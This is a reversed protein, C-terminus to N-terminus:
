LVSIPDDVDSALPTTAQELLPGAASSTGLTSITPLSLGYIVIPVYGADDADGAAADGADVPVFALQGLHTAVLLQTQHRWFAVAASLREKKAELRQQVADLVQKARQLLPTATSAAPAPTTTTTTQTMTHARLKDMAVAGVIANQPIYSLPSSHMSALRQAVAQELLPAARTGGQAGM